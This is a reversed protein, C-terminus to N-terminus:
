KFLLDKRTLDFNIPLVVMEKKNVGNENAPIWKPMMKVIRLAETDLILESSKLVRINSLSGDENITFAILSKGEWKQKQAEEPYRLNSELFQVLAKEGGPFQPKSVGEAKVFLPTCFILVLSLNLITKM